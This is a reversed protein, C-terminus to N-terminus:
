RVPYIAYPGHAYLPAATGRAVSGCTVVYSAGAGAALRKTREFDNRANWLDASTQRLQHIPGGDYLPILWEDSVPLMGRRGYVRFTPDFTMVHFLASAPLREHAFRAVSLFDDSLVRTDCPSAALPRNRQERPLKVAFAFSDHTVGSRSLVPERLLLLAMCPIGIFAAVACAAAFAKASAGSASMAFLTLAVCAAIGLPVRISLLDLRFLLLATAAGAGIAALVVVQARARDVGDGAFWPLWWDRTLWLVSIAAVLMTGARIGAPPFPTVDLNLFAVTALFANVARRVWADAFTSEVSDIACAVLGYFPVYSFHLFRAGEFVVPTLAVIRYHEFLRLMVIQQLPGIVISCGLATWLWGRLSDFKERRIRDLADAAPLLIMWGTRLFFAAHLAQVAILAALLARRRAPFFRYAILLGASAIVHFLVVPTVRVGAGRFPFVMVQDQGYRILEAAADFAYGGSASGIVAHSVFIWVGSTVALAIFVRPPLERRFVAVAAVILVIEILALGTAPNVLVVPISVATGALVAALVGPEADRLLLRRVVLLILPTLATCVVLPVPATLIGWRTGTVVFWSAFLSVIAVALATYVSVGLGALLRTMSPLYIAILLLQLLVLAVRFDSAALRTVVDFLAMYASSARWTLATRGRFVPDSSFDVGPSADVVMAAYGPIDHDMALPNERGRFSGAAVAAIVVLTAAAILVTELRRTM